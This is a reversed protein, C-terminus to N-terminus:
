YGKASKSYSNSLNDSFSNLADPQMIEIFRRAAPSIFKGRRLVLGYSRVPFYDTLPICSLKENGTLCISTVISIGLAMEVYKKIVEWGGAEMQVKFDINHQQFVVDIIIRTSMSQPPMILSYPSIDQLSVRRKATLPHGLPTILVPEYSILPSYWIDDPVGLMPGVAFDVEGKQVLALGERGPVNHLKVQIHPYRGAFRSVIDPLLYLTTSEGAAINLSGTVLNNCQEQFSEALSDIGEVLPMALNLLMKGETTLRISPGRREFLHGGLDKELAKILLSISPQSLFMKEAAKSMSQAQAAHCFAQLQKLRNQKYHNHQM